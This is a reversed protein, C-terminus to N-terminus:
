LFMERACRLGNRAPTSETFGLAKVTLEMAVHLFDHLRMEAQLDISHYLVLSRLRTVADHCAVWVGKAGECGGAIDRRVIQVVVALSCPDLAGLPIHLCCWLPPSAFDARCCFCM